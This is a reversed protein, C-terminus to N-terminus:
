ADKKFWFFSEYSFVSPWLGRRVHRPMLDFAALILPVEEAESNPPHFMILQRPVAPTLGFLGRVQNVRWRWWRPRFTRICRWFYAWQDPTNYFGGYRVMRLGAGAAWRRLDGPWIARDIPQESRYLGLRQLWRWMFSDSTLSLAGGPRLVEGLKQLWARPDEVHEIVAASVIGDFSEPAFPIDASRVLAVDAPGRRRVAAIREASIETGTLNSFGLASLTRLIRGDGCGAELIRADHPLGRLGEVVVAYRVREPVVPINGLMGAATDWNAPLGQDGSAPSAPVPAAADLMTSPQEPSSM